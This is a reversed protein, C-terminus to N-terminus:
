ETDYRLTANAIRSCLNVSMKQIQGNGLETKILGMLDQEIPSPFKITQTKLKKIGRATFDQGNIRYYRAPMDYAYYQQLFAFAVWANQLIHHAGGIVFDYYPLAYGGADPTAGLLVFGDESVNNPNLLIYDIDSTFQQVSIEEVSGPTVYKSVIDIPYGEFLETVDDMWVFQYRSTMEPKDYQYQNRAYAWPKGNRSVKQTTLDIEVWPETDDYTGGNRFYKIHEIRFNNGSDIFWYCRFCDRLMDLVRKLTIPAKQAPQDYGSYIINSKPTIFLRQDIGTIPDDHAYLFQSFNYTARHRLDPDIVALLARFVGWIPYANRLTYQKRFEPELINVATTFTFWISIESWAARAVPFYNDNPAIYYLGPQYLGWQTPTDTKETSFSITDPFNFQTVYAYNRNDPVLDNDPIDYITVGSVDNRDCILRAFVPYDQINIVVDGTAGSGPYPHLTVSYPPTVYGAPAVYWLTANDSNRKLLFSVGATYELTYVGNTATFSQPMLSGSTDIATLYDPLEPSMNGSIRCVRITKNCAFHYTNILENESSVESCEQEWWMGALFCGIVSQGPVYVQIMPRKDIKVEQINPALDILNYEKEMGALVKTYRDNVAPSVIAVQADENFECDTKWFQGQWYQSWSQGGNTSIYIVIDFQTDFPQQQIFAFDGATFNLKGSLKARYFEQGTEKAYEIALDDKYIPYARRTVGNVSLEFKYIPNM